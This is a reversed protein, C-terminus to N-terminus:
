PKLPKHGGYGVVWVRFKIGGGDRSKSLGANRSAEVCAPDLSVQLSVQLGLRYKNYTHTYLNSLYIFLYFSLSLSLSIYIYIHM